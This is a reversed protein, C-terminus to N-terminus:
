SFASTRTAYEPAYQAVAQACDDALKIEGAGRAAISLYWLVRWHQFGLQAASLLEGAAVRFEGRHLSTLGCWFTLFPDKEYHGRYAAFGGVRMLDSARAIERDANMVEALTKGNLSSAFTLAEKTRGLSALFAFAGREPGAPLEGYWTRTRKESLMMAEYIDNLKRACNEAGFIRRAYQSAAAGLQQRVAPNRYLYELAAKYESATHVIMGTVSDIVLHKIGGAPFVVPPIGAFMVEQLNLESSAYTDACLPYGYADLTELVPAIENVYGKIEFRNAIGLQEAERMIELEAGGSGCVIFKVDPIEISACLKTFDPHMKQFSLTGIYGINFGTHTKATFGDLRAFDAPGYALHVRNRRDEWALDTIAPAEMAHPSTPIVVDLFDLLEPSLVQPAVHGGVHLWGALRMAPLPGRLFEGMVASNWWNVQVIDAAEIEQMMAAHDRHLAVRVGNGEALAVANLDSRPVSIPMITHEHGAFQKSYKAAYCVARAAGGFSLAEILHLIKAM